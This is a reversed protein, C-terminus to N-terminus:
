VVAGGRCATGAPKSEAPLAVPGRKRSRGAFTERRWDALQRIVIQGKLDLSELVAKVAELERGKGAAARQGLVVGNHHAFAAILHVGPLEEGHIGRLTKGDVAIGQGRKLGRDALWKGLVAEFAGADLRVFLRHLTVGDPTRRRKIGLAQCVLQQHEKGWQCIAYLSRAGCAMACVALALM